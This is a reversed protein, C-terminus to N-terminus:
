WAWKQYVLSWGGETTIASRSPTPPPVIASEELAEREKENMPPAQNDVLQLEREETGGKNVDYM